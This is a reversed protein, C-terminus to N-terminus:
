KKRPPRKPTMTQVVPVAGLGKSKAKLEALEQSMKEFEAKEQTREQAAEMMEAGHLLEAICRIMMLIGMLAVGHKAGMHQDSQEFAEYIEFCASIFMAAGIFLETYRSKLVVIIRRLFRHWGSMVSKEVMIAENKIKNM